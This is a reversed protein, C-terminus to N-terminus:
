KIKEILDKLLQFVLGRDLDIYVYESGTFLRWLYIGAFAGMGLGLLIKQVNNPIKKRFLFVIFAIPLIFVSPNYIFAAAFDLKLVSFAARTMGCGPCCIGLFYRTPCGIRTYIFAIVGIVIILPLNEKIYNIIKEKM